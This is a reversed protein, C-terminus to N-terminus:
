PTEDDSLMTNAIYKATELSKPVGEGTAYCSVVNRWGEMSGLEGAHQYLEFAKQKDAPIVGNVGKHLIAGASIAADAHGLDAAKLFDLLAKKTDKEYGDEGNYLCSGRIFHADGSTDHEVAANLHKVFDEKACPPIRLAVNGNLHLLAIYYLAGGHGINAAKKIYEFAEELKQVDSDDHEGIINVGVFYM